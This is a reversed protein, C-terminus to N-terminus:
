AEDSSGDGIDASWQRTLSGSAAIHHMAHNPYGGAQPWEDNADPRPLIVKLDKIREDTTIGDGGRLVEIREGELPKNVTGGLWDSCGSLVLMAVAISAIQTNAFVASM